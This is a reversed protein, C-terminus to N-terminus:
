ARPAVLERYAALMGVRAGDAAHFPRYVIAWHKGLTETQGRFTEGGEFVVRTIEANATTGIAPATAHLAVARTAIRVNGLFITTGFLTQEYVADVLPQNENLLTHGAFLQPGRLVVPGLEGILKTLVDVANETARLRSELQM